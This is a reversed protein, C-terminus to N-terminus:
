AYLVCCDAGRNAVHKTEAHVAALPVTRHRACHSHVKVCDCDCFPRTPLCTLMCATVQHTISPTSALPLLLLISAENYRAIVANNGAWIDPVTQQGSDCKLCVSFKVLKRFFSLIM